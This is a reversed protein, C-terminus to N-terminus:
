FSLFFANKIRFINNFLILLFNGLPRSRKAGFYKTAESLNGDTLISVKGSGVVGDTSPAIRVIKGNELGTYLNGNEDEEISEPGILGFTRGFM